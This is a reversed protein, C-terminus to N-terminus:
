RVSQVVTTNYPLEKTFYNNNVNRLTEWVTYLLKGIDQLLIRQLLIILGLPLEGKLFVTFFPSM